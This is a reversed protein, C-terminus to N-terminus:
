KSIAVHRHWVDFDLTRGSVWGQDYCSMFYIEASLMPHFKPPVMILALGYKTICVQNLVGSIYM